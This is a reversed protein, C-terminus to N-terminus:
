TSPFSVIGKAISPYIHPFRHELYLRNKLNISLIAITTSFTHFHNTADFSELLIYFLSSSTVVVCVLAKWCAFADSRGEEGV